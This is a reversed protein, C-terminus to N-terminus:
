GARLEEVVNARRSGRQALGAALLAVVIVLVPAGALALWPTAPDPTPPYQPLPDLSGVVVRLTALAVSAGILAALALIAAVEFVLSGLEAAPRLGMRRLLASALTQSRQRAYLYLLLGLLALAGSAGGLLVLFGYSRSAAVVERDGLIDHRTLLYDAGIPPGGLVREVQREDGRAWVYGFATSSIEAAAAGLHAFADASAILLPRDTSMSPFARVRGVVRLPVREGAIWAAGPQKGAGGGAVIVALPAGSSRALRPLLQRPSAGWAQNWHIVHALQAPQVLLLDAQDGTASGLAIGGYAVTVKTAPFPLPPLTSDVSITGQVDGGIAVMAKAHTGQALSERVGLGYFLVGSAVAVVVTLLGALSSGSSMRRVALFLPLSGPRARAVVLRAFRLLAGGFGAVVLLPMAYAAIGPRSDGARSAHLTLLLSIGAAAPVLEWPARQWRSRSQRPLRFQRVFAVCAAAVLLAGALLLAGAAVAAARRLSAADFSAHPEFARVVAIVAVFGAIGGVGIAPLSELGTRLAFVSTPEGRTFRYRMEGRRRAVLFFGGAAAVALAVATGISGLLASSGAVASANRDALGVAARLSSTTSCSVGSFPGLNCGLTNSLGSRPSALEEGIRGFRDALSRARGLTMSGPRVPVEWREDFTHGGIAEHLPVLQEAPLFAFTPLMDPDGRRPPYIEHSFNSWYDNAEGKWLARYIAGVRIRRPPRPADAFGGHIAIVDGPVVGLYSAVSDALWIGDGGGALRRVHRTAGTRAMLVIDISKAGRAAEVTSSSLTSVVSGASSSEGLSRAVAATRARHRALVSTQKPEHGSGRRMVELGAGLPTMSAVQDKFAASGAAATFVVASASSFAVLLGAVVFAAVLPRNARLARRMRTIEV